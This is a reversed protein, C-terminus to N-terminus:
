ATPYEADEWLVSVAIEAPGTGGPALVFVAPFRGDDIIQNVASGSHLFIMRCVM